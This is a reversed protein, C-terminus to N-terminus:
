GGRQIQRLMGTLVTRPGVEHFDPADQKLLWEVTEVWRVSKEIQLTLNEIVDDPGYPEATVNAIVPIRPAHFDFGHLFDGFEAAAAAMYRSHFAGSVNLVVYRKAGADKIYPEAAAIADKPGSIVTQGPTNLNAVDISDLGHDVLANRIQSVPLGLVAAMGGEAAQAMLQGRREVLRLGTLFDFVGAAFLADFEGLSHGAVFDPEHGLEEVKAMHSLANVAFLAPQTYTTDNLREAPGDVCLAKLDYGLQHSAKETLPAFQEFLAEGMGLEQSGQGPFLFILSM